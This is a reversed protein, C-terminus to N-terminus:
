RTAESAVKELIDDLEKGLKTLEPNGYTSFGASPKFYSVVTKGDNREFVYIKLPLEFGAAPDAAFLRGGVLPRFVGYTRSGKTHVNVMSLMNQHDIKTPVMFMQNRLAGELRDVTTKFDSNSAKDVRWPEAGNLASASLLLVLITLYRFRGWFLGVSQKM